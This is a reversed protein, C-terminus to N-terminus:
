APSCCTTDRNHATRRPSHIEPVCRRGTHKYLQREPMPFSFDETKRPNSQVSGKKSTPVSRSRPRRNEPATVYIDKERLPPTKRAPGKRKRPNIIEPAKFRVRPEPEESQAEDAPSSATDVEGAGARDDEARAVLRDDPSRRASRASSSRAVDDASVAEPAEGELLAGEGRGSGTTRSGRSEDKEAGGVFDAERSIRALEASSVIETSSSDFLFGRLSASLGAFRAPVRDDPPPGGGSLSPRDETLPPPAGASDDLHPEWGVSHRVASVDESSDEAAVGSSEESSTNRSFPTTMPALSCQCFLVLELQGAVFNM